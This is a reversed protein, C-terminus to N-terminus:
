LYKKLILKEILVENSLLSFIIILINIGSFLNFINDPNFM